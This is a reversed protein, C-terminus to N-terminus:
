FAQRVANGNGLDAGTLTVRVTVAPLFFRISPKSSAASFATEPPASCATLDRVEPSVLLLLVVSLM